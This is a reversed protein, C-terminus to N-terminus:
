SGKSVAASFGLIVGLILTAGMIVPVIASLSFASRTNDTINAAVATNSSLTGTLSDQINEYIINSVLLLTAIIVLGMVGAVLQAQGKNRM